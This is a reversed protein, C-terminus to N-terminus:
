KITFEVDFDLSPPNPITERVVTDSMEKDLMRAREEIELVKEDKAYISPKEVQYPVITPTSPPAEGNGNGRKILNVVKSTVFLVSVLSVFVIKANM